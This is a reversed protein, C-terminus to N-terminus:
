ALTTVVSLESQAVLQGSYLTVATCTDVDLPGLSHCSCYRSNDSILRRMAIVGSAASHVTSLQFGSNCPRDRAGDYAAPYSCDDVSTIIDPLNILDSLAGKHSAHPAPATNMLQSLNKTLVPPEPKDLRWRSRPWIPKSQPLARWPLRMEFFPSSNSSIATTGHPKKPKGRQSMKTEEKRMVNLAMHRLVALNQPGNDVRDRASDESMTVDLCEHLRNEVGWYDCM